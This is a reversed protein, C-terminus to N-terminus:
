SDSSLGRIFMSRWHGSMRRARRRAIPHLFHMGLGPLCFCVSCCCGKWFRELFISSFGFGLHLQLQLQRLFARFWNPFQERDAVGRGCFSVGGWVVGFYCFAFGESQNKTSFPSLKDKLLLRYIGM